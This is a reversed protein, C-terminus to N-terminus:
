PHCQNRVKMYANLFNAIEGVPMETVAAVYVRDQGIRDLFYMLLWPLSSIKCFRELFPSPVPSPRQKREVFLILQRYWNIKNQNAYYENVFYIADLAQIGQPRFCDFDIIYPNGTSDKLINNPHFDGHAPGVHFSEAEMLATILNECTQKKLRGCIEEIVSLGITIQKFDNLHNNPRIEACRQFRELINGAAKFLESDETIAYRRQTEILSYGLSKKHLYPVLLIRLPKYESLLQMNHIEHDISESRWSIKLFADDTSLIVIWRVSSKISSYKEHGKLTFIAICFCRKILYLLSRLVAPPKEIFFRSFFGEPDKALLFLAKRIKRIV